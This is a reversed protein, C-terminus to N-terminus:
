YEGLEELMSQRQEQALETIKNGIKMALDLFRAGQRV